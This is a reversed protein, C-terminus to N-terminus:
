PSAPRLVNSMGNAHLVAKRHVRHTPDEILAGLHAVQMDIVDNFGPADM